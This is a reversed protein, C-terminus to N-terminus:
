AGILGARELLEPIKKKFPFFGRTAHPWANDDWPNRVRYTELGIDRLAAATTELGDAVPGVPAEPTVVMDAGVASAHEALAIPDLAEIVRVDADRTSAIWLAANDVAAHVFARAKDGLPWPVAGHGSRAIVASAIDLGAPLSEHGLLDDGHLLMLARRGAPVNAAPAIMTPAPSAENLIPQAEIALNMPHYRGNTYKAINDPRALYTKGRTQLGAVWRWGLTNSAPDADLLHRLFFDAGLAWPLKLTFIWISALWMRVHNHLYGTTRLERVWDDFGDIGTYGTEAADLTKSLQSNAEIRLRETSCEARFAQWVEPRQQLWGKWYTRWFVEQIFKEAQETSHQELVASVVERETILRHRLYPSLMSVTHKFGRGPDTNRQTAYHRGARPVFGRLRALAAERTPIFLDFLADNGWCGGRCNQSAIGM